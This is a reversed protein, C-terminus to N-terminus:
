NYEQFVMQFHPCIPYKDKLHKFTHSKYMIRHLNPVGKNLTDITKNDEVLHHM